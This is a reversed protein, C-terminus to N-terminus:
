AEGERCDMVMEVGRENTNRPPGDIYFERTGFLARMNSTIGARARITIEHTLRGVSQLSEMAETAAKPTVRAWVTAVDTWSDEMEGHDNRIESKSQLKIRHRLKGAAIM